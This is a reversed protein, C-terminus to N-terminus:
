ASVEVPTGNIPTAAAVPTTPSPLHRRATSESVGAKAAIQALTGAPLKAAARAVKEASTTSRPRPRSTRPKAATLAPPPTVPGIPEAYDRPDVPPTEPQDVLGALPTVVPLPKGTRALVEVALLFSVAPVAAVLRATVNPNASAVNAALTALIGFVLAVRASLRPRRQHRKDDLMALTAVLILGDIALPLVAAVSVHEGATSAVDYIHQYSAFGAVAAVLAAAARSTVTSLNM